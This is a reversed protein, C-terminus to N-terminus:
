GILQLYIFIKGGIKGGIKGLRNHGSTMTCDVCIFLVPAKKCTMGIDRTAVGSSLSSEGFSNYHIPVHFDIKLIKLSIIIIM